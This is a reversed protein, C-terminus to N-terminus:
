PKTPFQPQVPTKALEQAYLKDFQIPPQNEPMRTSRTIPFRRAPPFAPEGYPVLEWVTIKQKALMELFRSLHAQHYFYCAEFCGGTEDFLFLHAEHANDHELDIVDCVFIFTRYTEYKHAHPQNESIM